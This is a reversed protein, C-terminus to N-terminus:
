RILTFKKVMSINETQLKYFYIGSSFGTADFSISHFGAERFEDVLVAVEKGLVDYVKLTQWSGVPSQWSITTNPNFPNPYNQNVVFDMPLNFDVEITSSYAFTGNFDIQKLRYYYKDPNVPQDSYSYSQVETTTGHGSVFRIKEWVANTTSSKREVEFGSNNIESATSWGLHINRGAQNATFSILEVPLPNDAATINDIGLTADVIDGQYGGAVSHIIRVQTVNGLTAALNAGGTLDSAALSFQVVQWGSQASLVVPNVSWFDGGAGRMVIRMNLTETSFNNMHMSVVTVGATLYNGAWQSQNYVAIRGGAGQNGTATLLLYVDDTGAPGGTLVVIPPNPNVAGSTWSQTTGGQFNDWQNPEIALSTNQTMFLLFMLSITFSVFFRMNCGKRKTQNFKILQTYIARLILEIYHFFLSM